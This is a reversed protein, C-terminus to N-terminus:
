SVIHQNKGRKEGRGATLLDEEQRHAPGPKVKTYVLATRGDPSTNASGVCLGGKEKLGEEKLESRRYPCSLSM